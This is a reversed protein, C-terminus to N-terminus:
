SYYVTRSLTCSILLIFHFHQTSNWGHHYYSLIHILKVGLRKLQNFPNLTEIMWWRTKVRLDWNHYYLIYIFYVNICCKTCIYSGEKVKKKYKNYPNWTLGSFNRVHVGTRGMQRLLPITWKFKLILQQSFWETRLCSWFGTKCEFKWHRETGKRSFSKNRRRLSYRRDPIPSTPLPVTDTSFHFMSHSFRNIYKYLPKVGM